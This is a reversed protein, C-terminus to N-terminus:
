QIMMSKSNKLYEFKDQNEIVQYIIQYIFKKIELNELYAPLLKEFAWLSSATLIESETKDL